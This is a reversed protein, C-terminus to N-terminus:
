VINRNLSLILLISLIKLKFTHYFYKNKMDHKSMINIKTFVLEAPHRLSNEM